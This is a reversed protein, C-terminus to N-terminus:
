PAAVVFTGVMGAEAHGEISCIFQFRGRGRPTFTIEATVGPNVGVFKWKAATEGQDSQGRVTLQQTAFYASAITHEVSGTNKLALTVPRGETLNIVDPTFKFDSATVSVTAAPAPPPGSPPPAAAQGAIPTGGVGAALVILAAVAAVRPMQVVRETRRDHGM